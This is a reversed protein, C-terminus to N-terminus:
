RRRFRISIAAALVAAFFGFKTYINWDRGLLLVVFVLALLTLWVTLNMKMEKRNEHIKRVM